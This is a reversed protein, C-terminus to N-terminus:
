TGTGIMVLLFFFATMVFATGGLVAVEERRRELAHAARSWPV